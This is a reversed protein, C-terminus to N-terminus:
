AYISIKFIGRVCLCGLFHHVFLCVFLCVLCEVGAACAHARPLLCVSLGFVRGQQAHARMPYYCINEYFMLAHRYM